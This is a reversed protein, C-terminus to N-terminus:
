YGPAAPRTSAAMAARYVEYYRNKIGSWSYKQAFRRGNDILTQRLDADGWVRALAMALAEHDQPDALLVADQHSVLLSAMSNFPAMTTIVPVGHAMAELLVMPFVDQTTPHALCDIAAYVLPMDPVVGLFRCEKGPGLARALDTYRDAQASNGIVLVQVDFPLLAAAKLLADLGKKKFDHGVFGIVMKDPSLGLARRAGAREAPTIAHDPVDVGPPIFTGSSLAPLAERTEDLLLQSVFVNQNGISCLRKKEIWLYALLRPSSLIRFWSMGKQKLSAHVTKVHVTHVNGDTVNEHSHVIDFGQRTVRGSFWSFWLQNVWRSRIPLKPVAIHQFFEHSADFSQSIVTIDCESRMATALQVAFSEAGGSIKSFNRSLIAVKM